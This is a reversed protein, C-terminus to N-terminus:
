SFVAVSAFNLNRGLVTSKSNQVWTIEQSPQKIFGNMNRNLERSITSPHIRLIRARKM